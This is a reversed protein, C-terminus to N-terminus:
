IEEKTESDVWDILKYNEIIYKETMDLDEQHQSKGFAFDILKQILNTM